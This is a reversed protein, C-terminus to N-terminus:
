NRRVHVGVRVPGAVPDLAGGATGYRHTRNFLMLLGVRGDVRHKRILSSVHHKVTRETIALRQAIRKNTLGLMLLGLVQGAGARGHDSCTGTSGKLAHVHKGARVICM